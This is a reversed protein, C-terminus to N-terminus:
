LLKSAQVDKHPANQPLINKDLIYQDPIELADLLEEMDEYVASGYKDKRGLWTHPAINYAAKVHATKTRRRAGPSKTEIEDAGNKVEEVM